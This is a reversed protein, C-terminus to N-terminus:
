RRKIQDPYHQYPQHASLMDNYSSVLAVNSKTLDLISQKEDSCSAAVAHALNGCSLGKGGKGAAAQHQTRKLFEKRAAQSRELMRQTVAQIIPHTM